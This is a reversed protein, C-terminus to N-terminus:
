EFKIMYSAISAQSFLFPDGVKRQQLHPFFIPKLKHEKVTNQHYNKTKVRFFFFLSFTWMGLKGM